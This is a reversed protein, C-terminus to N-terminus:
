FSFYVLVLIFKFNYICGCILRIYIYYNLLFLIYCKKKTHLSTQYHKHYTSLNAKDDKECM